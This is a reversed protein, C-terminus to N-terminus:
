SGPGGFFFMGADPWCREISEGTQSGPLSICPGPSTGVRCGFVGRLLPLITKGPGMGYVGQNHRPNEQM